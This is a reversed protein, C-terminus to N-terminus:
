CSHGRGSKWPGVELAGLPARADWWLVCLYRAIGVVSRQHSSPGVIAFIISIVICILAVINGVGLAM